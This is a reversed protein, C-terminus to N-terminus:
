RPGVLGLIKEATRETDLERAAQDRCFRARELYEARFTANTTTAANAEFVRARREYYEVQTEKTTNDM